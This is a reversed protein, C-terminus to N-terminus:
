SPRAVQSRAAEAVELYRLAEDCLEALYLCGSDLAIAYMQALLTRLEDGDHTQLALQALCAVFRHEETALAFALQLAHRARTQHHTQGEAAHM